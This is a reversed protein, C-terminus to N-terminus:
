AYATIMRQKLWQMAQQYRGSSKALFWLALLLLLLHVWWLGLTPSLLGKAVWRKSMTLLNFYVICVFIALFLRAYRGQRPSVQSLPIALLALLPASLPVALRWQLEAINGADPQQWLRQTPMTRHYYVGTPAVPNELLHRYQKFTIISYDKKGPTGNYRRGERLTVYALESDPDNSVEATRATLVSWQQQKDGHGKPYEAIFLKGFQSRDSNLDSIYFVFRDKDISHFRGSSVTQLL